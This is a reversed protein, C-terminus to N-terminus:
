SNYENAWRRLGLFLGAFLFILFLKEHTIIPNFLDNVYFVYGEKIAEDVTIFFALALLGVSARLRWRKLLERIM